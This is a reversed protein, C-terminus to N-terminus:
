RCYHNGILQLDLAPCPFNAPCLGVNKLQALCCGASQLASSLETVKVKPGISALRCDYLTHTGGKTNNVAWASEKQGCVSLCVFDCICSIVKGTSQSISTDTFVDM